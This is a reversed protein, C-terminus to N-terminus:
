GQQRRNSKTLLSKAMRSPFHSQQECVAFSWLDKRNRHLQPPLSGNSVLSEIRGMPFAETNESLTPLHFRLLMAALESIM